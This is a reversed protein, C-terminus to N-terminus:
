FCYIISNSTVQSSLLEVIVFNGSDLVGVLSIIDGLLSSMWFCSHSVGGREGRIGSDRGITTIM